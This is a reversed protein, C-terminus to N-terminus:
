RGQGKMFPWSKRGKRVVIDDDSRGEQLVKMDWEDNLFFFFFNAVLEKNKLEKSAGSTNDHGL